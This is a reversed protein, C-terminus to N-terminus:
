NPWSNTVKYAVVGEQDMTGGKWGFTPSNHLCVTDSSPLPTDLIKTQHRLSAVNGASISGSVQTYGASISVTKQALHMWAMLM